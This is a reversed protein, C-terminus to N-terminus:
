ATAKVGRIEASNFREDNKIFEMVMFINVSPLNNSSAKVFGESEMNKILYAKILWASRLNVICGAVTAHVCTYFTFLDGNTRGTVDRGILDHKM